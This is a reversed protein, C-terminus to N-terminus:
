SVMEIKRSTLPGRTCAPTYVKPRKAIQFQLFSWFREIALAMETKLILAFMDLCSQSVFFCRSRLSCYDASMSCLQRAPSVLWHVM